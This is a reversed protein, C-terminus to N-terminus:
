IERFWELMLYAALLVHLIAVVPVAFRFVTKRTKHRFLSMAMLAGIAGGAIAVVLLVTESLRWLGRRATAKDFSYMCFAVLNLLLIGYFAFFEMQQLHKESCGSPVAPM